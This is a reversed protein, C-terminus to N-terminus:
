DPGAFEGIRAVDLPTSGGVDLSIVISLETRAPKTLLDEVRRIKQIRELDDIETRLTKVEDAHPDDSRELEQIRSQRFQILDPIRGRRDEPTHAKLEDLRATRDARGALVRNRDPDVQVTILEPHETDIKVKLVVEGKVLDQGLPLRDIGDERGVVASPPEIVHRLPEQGEAGPRQVVVRWRRIRLKWHTGALAEPHLTWPKSKDHADLREYLVPRDEWIPLPVPDRRGVGRLLALISRGDPAQFKLVADRLAAVSEPQNKAADTWDFSWTKAKTHSFQALTFGGGIMSKTRTAIKSTSQTPAPVVQFEPANLIEFRDGVEESLMIEGPQRKRSDVMSITVDPLTYALPMPPDPSHPVAPVPQPSTVQLKPGGPDGGAGETKKAVPLSRPAPSSKTRTDGASKAAEKTEAPVNERITALHPGPQAVPQSAAPESGLRRRLTLSWLLGFAILPVL